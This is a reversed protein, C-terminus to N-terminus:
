TSREMAITRLEHVERGARASRATQEARRAGHATNRRTLAHRIDTGLTGDTGRAQFTGHAVDLAGETRRAGLQLEGHPQGPRTM